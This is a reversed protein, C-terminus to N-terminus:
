WNRQLRECAMWYQSYPSLSLSRNSVTGLRTLYKLSTELKLSDCNGLPYIIAVAGWCPVSSEPPKLLDRWVLFASLCSLTLTQTPFYVLDQCSGHLLKWHQRHKLRCRQSTLSLCDSLYSTLGTASPWRVSVIPPRGPALHYLRPDSTVLTDKGPEYASAALTM